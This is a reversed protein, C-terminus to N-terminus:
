NSIENYLKIHNDVMISIDFQKARELCTKVIKNYLNKNNLLKLIEKALQESDGQEFLIGAGEVVEKLGPVTSAIFPRGSAMAEISSLSLGEYKSSLVVIDATKLLNPIDSRNGLFFVRKNLNLNAVLDLSLKLDVGSGVLILKVYKPLLLLSKIVTLQDKPKHFSSVQILLKDEKKIGKFLDNFNQMPKAIEIKKIDVGNEIVLLKDDTLDIYRKLVNKIDETICVIKAYKKYIFSDLPKFFFSEIRRNSTSHETFILKVKLLFFLKSLAVFYLSPFLHVHAITYKKLYPIIKFILLPNYVSGKGLSFIKCCHQKKLEKLFPYETGNLLLLDVNIGKKNYLPITELL